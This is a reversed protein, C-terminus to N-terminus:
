STDYCGGLSTQAEEQSYKIQEAREVSRRAIAAHYAEHMRIFRQAPKELDPMQIKGTTQDIASRIDFSWLKERFVLFCARKPARMNAYIRRGAGFHLNRM